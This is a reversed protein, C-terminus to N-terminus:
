SAEDPARVHLTKVSVIVEPAPPNEAVAEPVWKKADAISTAQIEIWARTVMEVQVRYKFLKLTSDPSM